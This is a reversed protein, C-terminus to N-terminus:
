RSATEIETFFGAMIRPTASGSRSSTAVAHAGGISTRWTSARRARRTTALLASV